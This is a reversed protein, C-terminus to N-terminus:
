AVVGRNARGHCKRTLRRVNPAARCLLSFWEKQSKYFDLGALVVFGGVVNRLSGRGRETQRYLRVQREHRASM